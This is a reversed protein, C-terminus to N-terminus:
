KAGSSGAAPRRLLAYALCRQPMILMSRLSAATRGPSGYGNWFPTLGNVDSSACHDVVPGRGSVEDRTRVGCGDSSAAKWSAKVRPVVLMWAASLFPQSTEIVGLPPQTGATIAPRVPM